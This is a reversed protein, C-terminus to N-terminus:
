PPNSKSRFGFMSGELRISLVVLEEDPVLWGVVLEYSEVTSGIRIRM